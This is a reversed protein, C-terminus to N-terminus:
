RIQTQRAPDDDRRLQRQERDQKQRAVQLREHHIMQLADLLDGAEDETLRLRHIDFVLPALHFDQVVQHALDEYLRLALLEGRTLREKLIRDQCEECSYAEPDAEIDAPRASRCCTIKGEQDGWWDM